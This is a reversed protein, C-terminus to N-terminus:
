SRRRRLIGLGLLGSGLLLLTGPEPVQSTGGFGDVHSVAKINEIRSDAFGMEDLDIVAFALDGINDFLFWHYESGGGRGVKVLFYDSLIDLNLAFLGVGVDLWEGRGFEEDKFELTVDTGLVSEVWAEESADGSNQLNAEAMLDDVGGVEGITLAAAPNSLVTCLLFAGIGFLSNKMIKM